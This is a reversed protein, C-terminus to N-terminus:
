KIFLCWLCVFSNFAMYELSSKKLLYHVITNSSNNRVSNDSSVINTSQAERAAAERMARDVGGFDDIENGMYRMDVAAGSDLMGGGMKM